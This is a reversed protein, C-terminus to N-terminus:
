VIFRNMKFFNIREKPTLCGIYRNIIRDNNIVRNNNINNGFDHFCLYQYFKYPEPNNQNIIFLRKMKAINKEHFFWCKEYSYYNNYYSELCEVLSYDSQKFINLIKRKLKFFNKIDNLLAKPQPYYVKSIIFEQTDYPLKDFHSEM